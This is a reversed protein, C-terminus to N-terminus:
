TSTSSRTGSRAAHHEALPKVTEPIGANNFYVDLGGLQTVALEVAERRGRAADRRRRVADRRRLGECTEGRRRSTSPGRGGGVRGRARVPAGDRPRDGVRRGHGGRGEGGLSGHGTAHCPHLTMWQTSAWASPSGLRIMTPPTSSTGPTDMSSFARQSSRSPSQSRRSHRNSGRPEAGSDASRTSGDETGSASAPKM